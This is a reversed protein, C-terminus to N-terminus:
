CPKPDSELQCAEGESTRTYPPLTMFDDYAEDHFESGCILLFAGPLFCV